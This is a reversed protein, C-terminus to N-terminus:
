ANEAHGAKVLSVTYSLPASDGTGHFVLKSEPYVWYTKVLPQIIQRQSDLKVLQCIKVSEKITAVSSGKKLIVSNIWNEFFSLLLHAETDVFTVKLSHNSTALPIKIKTQAAEITYSELDAVEDEVDQAPFWQGFPAPVKHEVVGDDLLGAFPKDVFKIDWLYGQSWQVRRLLSIDTLFAM